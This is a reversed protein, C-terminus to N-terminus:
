AYMCEGVLENPDKKEEESIQSFLFFSFPPPPSHVSFSLCIPTKLRGMFWHQLSINFASAIAHVMNEGCNCHIVPSTACHALPKESEVQTQFGCLCTIMCRAAPSFLRQSHCYCWPLLNLGNGAFAGAHCSSSGQGAESSCQGTTGASHVCCLNFLTRIWPCWTMM